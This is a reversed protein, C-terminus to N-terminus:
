AVQTYRNTDPPYFRFVNVQKCSEFANTRKLLLLETAIFTEHFTKGSYDPMAKQYIHLPLASALDLRPKASIKLGPCNYATIYDNIVNLQHALERFPEHNQVRLFITHEPLGGYNNLSVAFSKQRSCIRQIWKIITEEMRESALFSGVPIHPVPQMFAKSQYREAFELIETVLKSGVQADPRVVLLYEWLGERNSPASVLGRSM